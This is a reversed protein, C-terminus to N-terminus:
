EELDQYWQAAGPMVWTPLARAVTLGAVQAAGARRLVKSCADLTAGTTFVDDVLMVRLKDVRAGERAAYAGRVSTWRERYTLKLKDPRPKTRVLLYSRYPIGLLHALPRAILEAQNYGRERLRAPHLPVPVVIDSEFRASDRRAIEALRKAFWSGLSTVEHYKLLLVARAMEKTYAGFSRALDFEYVDRRCLHCQPPGAATLVATSVIPRGCCDCVPEPLPKRLAALCAHCFPIRSGTDLIQACIRCPAPFFVSALAESVGRFHTRVSDPLRFM